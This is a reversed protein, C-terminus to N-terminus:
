LRRRRTPRRKPRSDDEKQKEAQKEESKLPQEVKGIISKQIEISERRALDLDSLSMEIDIKRLADEAPAYKQTAALSIWAYGKILNREGMDGNVYMAGLAYQSQAYNQSAAYTYYTAALEKNEKEVGLAKQNMYGLAHYAGLDGSQAAITYFKLAKYYDIFESKYLYIDGLYRGVVPKETLPIKEYYSLAKGVDQEVGDGTDYLVGLNLFASVNNQEAAKNYLELAKEKDQRVIKGEPYLYGLLSQALDYNAEASKTIYSLAKENDQGVGGYGNLYLYGVYYQSRYDGADALPKFEAFAKAYQQNNFAEEGEIYGANVATVGLCLLFFLLIRKM